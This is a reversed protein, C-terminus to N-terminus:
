SSARSSASGPKRRCPAPARTGGSVAARPRIRARARRTRTRRPAPAGRRTRPWPRATGRAGRALHPRERKVLLSVLEEYGRESLGSASTGSPARCPAPAPRGRWRRSARAGRGRADRARRPRLYGGNRVQCDRGVILEDVVEGLPRTVHAFQKPALARVDRLHSAQQAGLPHRRTEGDCGLGTDGIHLRTPPAQSAPPGPRHRAAAQLAQGLLTQARGESGRRTDTREPARSDIGPM